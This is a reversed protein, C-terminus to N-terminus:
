SACGERYTEVVVEVARTARPRAGPAPLAEELVLGDPHRALWRDLCRLHLANGLDVFQPKPQPSRAPAGEETGGIPPHLFLQDPVGLLARWRAVAEFPVETGAATLDGRLSAVTGPALKWRRRRLVVHRHRLRPTRVLQGGPVETVRRPVLSAFSVVGEPHDHVLPASRTTLLGTVLLGPYLVDLREGTGRLRLRVQDDAEDHFLEVDRDDVPPRSGDPTGSPGHEEAVVEDPLFRPQLNANFGHVPRFQVPRSGPGTGAAVERAVTTTAGPDLLGLFRSGVRGWGGYTHNVCLLGRGSDRQVFHAYSLPRRAAWGPLRAAFAGVLEPPLVVDADPGEDPDEPSGTRASVEAEFAARLRVLEAAGTPLAGLDEDPSLFADRVTDEWARVTEKGFDWVPHCVGGRGYRAVFRDRLTRRALHGLDFLEALAAVERLAEHDDATFLAGAAVPRRAVVDETLVPPMPNDPPLARGASALLAAWRGRLFALLAVRGHPDAAGFKRTADAIEDLSAALAADARGGHAGGEGGAGRLWAALAGLPDHDQPGVPPVPVLLGADVLQDVYALAAARDQPAALAGALEAPTAPTRCLEAVRELPASAEVEVEDEDTVLFRGVASPPRTRAFTARGEATRAASAMRLPLRARRRPDALLAECLAAVLSRSTRVHNGTPGLLDGDGWDSGAREAPEQGETLPGWGVATFWSVPSSRTAARVAHRLVGPEEKRARRGDAGAGAREVAALLDASTASAALALAPERCWAALAAREAALAAPASGALRARVSALQERLELWERLPPVREPLDGLGALVAPRPERGNHLARRLPLVVDRHFSDPHGGRSAYLADTLRPLLRASKGALRTLRELGERFAAADPSQAPHSLTTARVLAYPATRVVPSPPTM